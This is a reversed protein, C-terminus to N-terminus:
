RAPRQEFKRMSRRLAVFLAAGLATVGLCLGMLWADARWGMAKLAEYLWVSLLPAALGRVGNLTVHTAMYQSTQHPPSFDVHGLNWALSGGGTAVGLVGAALYMLELRHALTGLLFLAVSAVFAWSHISRFRVVHARDLLRAWLPIAAASAAAPITTTVLISAFYALHFRERLCIAVIPAVMINGFGLVFLATMFRAYDPDKRLVRWVVLPGMWPPMIPGAALEERLLRRQRRVRVGRTALLALVGCVVAGAVAGRHWAPGRDLLAGLLAGVGAGILVQLRSLRGVLTARAERPYNARWITPRITIIGSWCTRALLALGLVMALGAPTRPALALGAVCVLVGAQLANIWPIKARGQALSSWAFSLVNALADMASLLAVAFNLPREAVIGTYTQKAFVALVGGEILALTVAFCATARVELAFSRRVAAAPASSDPHPRTPLITVALPLRVRADGVSAGM